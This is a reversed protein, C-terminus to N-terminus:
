KIYEDWGAYSQTKPGLPIALAAVALGLVLGTINLATPGDLFWPVGAAVLGLLVNLYRGLRMPEGMCIVSVVVVLSGALHLVDAVTDQIPVGFVGPAFVMAVGLLTAVVLTWPFSMGWISAAYVKGPEEPFKMLEPAKEEKEGGEITGGKWFLKWFKEGKKMKKKVFQIMAIVEDVELPIMPLMIAAALLCFTCWAGVVIPQSIVLFIHVLGLPIVLIGFIAVMWPMTRWRAPSGMWGMLFEFTYAIAGLGADSIPLSHSMNSNLVQESQNGFFPDWVSDIYGLQFAALYRSVVWGFFGLVMMIWRQPWSSPNYSWGPPVKPGMEMYMLMNPMGPILITLAIILAGVMTDNLYAVASPSWFLIPAMTLWIGVFCCIWLSVPRNPTLGRWGFFILLAGSIIDSWKMFAIRQDLDLWVSRGGSPQVTGINYDFTLPSLLVWFGLIIIMWYVWLTQMHHMHLMKKRMEPDMKMDHDKGKGNNDDDGGHMEKNHERMQKEAMPRTVGRMGMGGQQHQNDKSQEQQDKEM